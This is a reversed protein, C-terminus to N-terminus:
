NGGKHEMAWRIADQIAPPLFDAYFVPLVESLEEPTLRRDLIMEAQDQVYEHNITPYCQEIERIETDTM